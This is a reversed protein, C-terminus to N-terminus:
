ELCRLADAGDTAWFHPKQLLAVMQGRSPIWKEPFATKRGNDSMVGDLPWLTQRAPRSTPLRKAVLCSRDSFFTRSRSSGAPVLDSDADSLQIVEQKVVMWESWRLM